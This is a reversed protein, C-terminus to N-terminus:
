QSSLPANADHKPGLGLAILSLSNIKGTAELNQDTQFRKLADTSADTWQGTAQETALYGKAALATQIERYRSPTPVLQRAAPAPRVPGKKGKKASSKAIAGSKSVTRMGPKKKTASTAGHAALGLLVLAAATALALTSRM